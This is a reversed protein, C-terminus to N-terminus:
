LNGGENGLIIVLSSLVTSNSKKIWFKLWLKGWNIDVQEPLTHMYAAYLSSSTSHCDVKKRCPKSTLIIEGEGGGGGFFIHLPTTTLASSKLDSFQHNSAWDRGDRQKTLCSVKGWMLNDREMWTYLFLSTGAIYQQPYGQLPSSDWGPPTNEHQKM